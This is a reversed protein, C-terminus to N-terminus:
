GNSVIYNRRSANKQFSSSGVCMLPNNFIQVRNIKWILNNLKKSVVKANRVIQKIHFDDFKKLSEFFTEFM